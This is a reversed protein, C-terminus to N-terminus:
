RRGRVRGHRVAISWRGARPARAAFAEHSKDRDLSPFGDVPPLIPPVAARRCPPVPAGPLPDAILTGVSGGKDPVLAALYVLAAVRDHHGAVTIVAGGYSDGVLIAPGNLADPKHPQNAHTRAPRSRFPGLRGPDAGGTQKM